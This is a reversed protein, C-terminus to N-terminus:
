EAAPESDSKPALIHKLVMEWGGIAAVGAVLGQSAAEVISVGALLAAGIAGFVAVGATVWPVAKGGVKNKLGFKNAFAVLLSLLIGIALAWNKNQLADILLSVSETTADIQEPTPAPAADEVDSLADAPEVDADADGDAEEVPAEVAEPVSGEVPVDQAFAPAAFLLVFALYLYRM